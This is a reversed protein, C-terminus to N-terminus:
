CCTQGLGGPWAQHRSTVARAATAM